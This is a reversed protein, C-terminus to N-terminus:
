KTTRFRWISCRTMKLGSSCSAVCTTLAYALELPKVAEHLSCTSRLGGGEEI